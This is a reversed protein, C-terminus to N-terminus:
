DFYTDFSKEMEKIKKKKYDKSKVRQRWRRDSLEKALYNRKLRKQRKYKALRRSTDCSRQENDCVHHENNDIIESSSDM